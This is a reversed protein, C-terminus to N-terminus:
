ALTFDAAETDLTTHGDEATALVAIHWTGHASSAADAASVAERYVCRVTHGGAPTCTASEVEAMDKATLPRDAFESKEPWALVKLSKVGSPATVETTFSLSGPHGAEPATYRVTGHSLAPAPDQDDAYALAFAGAGALVVVGAVVSLAIRRSM